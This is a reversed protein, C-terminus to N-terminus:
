ALRTRAAVRIQNESATRRSIFSLLLCWFCLVLNSIPLQLASPLSYVIAATPLWVMWTSFLIVVVRHGLGEQELRLRLGSWSFGADKWLFFVVQTPAAWLPNYAFQDVCVKSAITGLSSNSGFVSSQVRYLADVEVGKWVWFGLYFALEALRMGKPLQKTACLYVFPIFGGFLATSLASYAYGYRTKLAGVSDLLTHFPPVWAYGILIVLACTQLVLGPVLNRRLGVLGPTLFNQLKSGLV